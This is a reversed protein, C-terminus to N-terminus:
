DAHKGAALPLSFAFTAGRGENNNKAWIKGGHAEVIGKSIYLGLGTGNESKSAFKTFLKSVIEPDIGAGSDKVSIIVFQGADNTEEELTVFVTGRESFKVANNVLNYVAQIIRGRDANIFISKGPCLFLLRVKDVDISKEVDAVVDVIVDNLLFVEKDLRLSKSEIKAVDLLSETLRNLRNANRNIIKLLKRYEGTGSSSGDSGGSSEKQCLIETLGIIPQIPTRLEHAAINIFEKQMESYTKLQEYLQRIREYLEAQNWLSEFISAYSLVTAKSNSYTALGIAEFTTEKTDDKVEVALSYKRDVILLSIRTRLPPELNRIEIKQQLKGRLKEIRDRIADDIPTMVRIQVDQARTMEALMRILGARQQRRFSNSTSFIGLIESRASSALEFALNQIRRPDTITEISEPSVGEQLERIRQGAPTAKEWLTEFFYQQQEVFQPITSRVLQSPSQGNKVNASARYDRGDAIGFNGKVNDLHRLEVIKMLEKCDSVNEKTIETIFRLLIGRNKLDVLGKLIPEVRVFAHPGTYDTCNDFRKIIALFGRLTIDIIREAGTIVETKEPEIGEEIERIKHEAPVAKSWLTDFIYQGQKVMEPADSYIVQTLPKGEELCTTAMYEDENLAIGGKVGDLHRLEDVVKMLEKCDRVNEKTIETFARIKGGKKRINIYGNRYADVGVVISPGKSDFCIDMHKKVNSMFRVGRGVANEVGYLVETKEKEEEERKHDPALQSM